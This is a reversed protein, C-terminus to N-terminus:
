NEDDNVSEVIEYNNLIEKISKDIDVVNKFYGKNMLRVLAHINIFITNDNRHQQTDLVDFEFQTLKNKQKPEELAKLKEELEECLDCMSYYEHKYWDLDRGHEDVEPEQKQKDLEKRDHRYCDLLSNYEKEKFELNDELENNKKRLTDVISYLSDIDEDLEEVDQIQKDLEKIDYEYCNKNIDWIDYKRITDSELLHGFRKLLSNYDKENLKLKELVNLIYSAKKDDIMIRKCKYSIGIKLYLKFAEIEKENM